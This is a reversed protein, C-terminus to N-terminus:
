AVVEPAPDIAAPSVDPAPILKGATLRQPASSHQAESVPKGFKIDAGLDEVEVTVKLRHLGTIDEFAGSVSDLLEDVIGPIYKGDMFKGDSSFRGQIEVYNKEM